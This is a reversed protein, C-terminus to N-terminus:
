PTDKKAELYIMMLEKFSRNPEKGFLQVEHIDLELKAIKQRAITKDRTKLSRRIQHGGSSQYSVQYIGDRKYLQM